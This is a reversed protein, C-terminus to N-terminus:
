TLFSVKCPCHLSIEVVLKKMYVRGWATIIGTAGNQNRQGFEYVWYERFCAWFVRKWDNSVLMKPENERFSPRYIWARSSIHYVLHVEPTLSGPPIHPFNKFFLVIKKKKKVILHLCDSPTTMTQGSTGIVSAVFQGGLMYQIYTSVPPLNVVLTKSLLPLNVTILVFRPFFTVAPIM